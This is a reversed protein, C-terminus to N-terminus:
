LLKLMNLMKIIALLFSSGAVVAGSLKVIFKWSEVSKELDVLLNHQFVVERILWDLKQTSKSWDKALAQKDSHYRGGCQTDREARIIREMAQEESSYASGAGRVQGGFSVVAYWM